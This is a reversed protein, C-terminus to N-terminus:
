VHRFLLSLRDLTQVPLLTLRLLFVLTLRLLHFGQVVLQQLELFLVLHVVSSAGLTQLADLGLGALVNTAILLTVALQALLDLLGLSHAALVQLLQLTLLALQLFELAHHLVALLQQLM